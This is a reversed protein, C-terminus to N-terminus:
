TFDKLQFKALDVMGLAVAPFPPECRMEVEAGAEWVVLLTNPNAAILERMIGEIREAMSQTETAESASIVRLTTM